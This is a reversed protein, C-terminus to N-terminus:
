INKTYKCVTPWSVGIKKQIDKLLLGSKRLIIIKEIVKPKTKNIPSVGVRDKGLGNKIAHLRSHEYQNTLLLNEIRNDLKNGNIHHVHETNLLSRGIHLEMVIRHEYKRIPNKRSNGKTIERYGNKTVTGIKKM